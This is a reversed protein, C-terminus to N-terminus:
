VTYVGSLIVIPYNCYYRGCNYCLMSLMFSVNFWIATECIVTKSAITVFHSVKPMFVVVWGNTRAYHVVHNLASSKGTGREGRILFARQASPDGGSFRKLHGIISRAPERHMIARNDRLAAYDFEHKLFGAVGEPFYTRM